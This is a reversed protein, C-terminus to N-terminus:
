NKIDDFLKKETLIGNKHLSQSKKNPIVDEDFEERKYVHPKSIIGAELNKLENEDLKSLQSELNDKSYIVKENNSMDSMIDSMIDQLSHDPNLAEAFDFSSDSTSPITSITTTKKTPTGYFIENLRNQTEAKEDIVKEVKKGLGIDAVISQDQKKPRGPKRLVSNGIKQNFNTKLRDFRSQIDEKEIQVPKNLIFAKDSESIISLEELKNCIDYLKENTDDIITKIENDEYDEALAKADESAKCLKLLEHMITEKLFKIKREFLVLARASVKERDKLEQIIKKDRSAEKELKALKDSNELKTLQQKMIDEVTENQKKAM